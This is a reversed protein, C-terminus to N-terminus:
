AKLERWLILASDAAMEMGVGRGGVDSGVLYFGQLPTVNGPRNGGVQFRNQAVGIVEGTKRGSIDACYRTNTRLKWVVHEEIDPYLYQMTAEIKDLVEECAADAAVPDDLNPSTPAGALVLQCGPPALGPDAASPVPFFIGTQSDMKDPTPFYYNLHTKVVEADLAYKVSVAALSLRLNDVMKVYDDPFNHRGALEVSEKIGNNSIVVDAPIMEGAATEVGTARGDEVVVRAVETDYRVEGGARELADLYDKPIAGIGGIPYSLNQNRAQTEFCYIFESASAQKPSITLHMGIIGSVFVMFQPDSTFQSLYETAPVEELAALEEATRPRMVDLFFGKAKDREGEAVELESLIRDLEEPKGLEQTLLTSRGGVMLKMAPELAKFRLSGGVERSIEGLPGKEGRAVWHVGTDYIFGDREFSAAKGGWFGNRELVLVKAGEKALLAAVGSGGIGTGIVVVRKDKLDM